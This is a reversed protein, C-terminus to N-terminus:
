DEAKSTAPRGFGLGSLAKRKRHGTSRHLGRAREPQSDDTHNKDGSIELFAPLDQIRQDILQRHEESKDMDPSSTSSRLLKAVRSLRKTSKFSMARRRTLQPARSSTPSSPPKIADADLKLKAPPSVIDRLRLGFLKPM